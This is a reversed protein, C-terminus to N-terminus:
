EMMEGSIKQGDVVADYEAVVKKEKQFPKMKVLDDLGDAIYERLKFLSTNDLSVGLSIAM